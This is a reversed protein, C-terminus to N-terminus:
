NTSRRPRMSSAQPEIGWLEVNRTVMRVGTRKSAGAKPRPTQTPAPIRFWPTAEREPHIEVRDILAALTQKVLGPPGSTLAANLGHAVAELHERTPPQPPTHNEIELTLADRHATLGDRQAALEQLRPACLHEPM